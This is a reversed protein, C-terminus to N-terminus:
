PSSKDFHQSKKEVLIWEGFRKNCPEQSMVHKLFIEHTGLLFAPYDFHFKAQVVHYAHLCLLLQTHLHM